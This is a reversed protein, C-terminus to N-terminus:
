IAQLKFWLNLTTLRGSTEVFAEEQIFELPANIQVSPKLKTSALSFWPKFGMQAKEKLYFIEVGDHSM